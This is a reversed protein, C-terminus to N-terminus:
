CPREGGFLSVESEKVGLKEAIFKAKNYLEDITIELEEEDGYGDSPKDRLVIGNAYNGNKDEIYLTSIGDKDKYDYYGDDYDEIINYPKDSKVGIIIFSSSSSNSVFGDRTKM